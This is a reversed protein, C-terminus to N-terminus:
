AFMKWYKIYYSVVRREASQRQANRELLPNLALM